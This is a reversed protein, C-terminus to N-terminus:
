RRPHRSARAREVRARSTMSPGSIAPIFLTPSRKPEPLHEQRLDHFRRAHHFRGDGIEQGEDLGALGLAVALVRAFDQEGGDLAVHMVDAFFM